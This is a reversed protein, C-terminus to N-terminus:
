NCDKRKKTHLGDLERVKRADVWTLSADNEPEKILSIVKSVVRYKYTICILWTIFAILIFIFVAKGTAWFLFDITTM